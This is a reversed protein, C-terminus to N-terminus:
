RGERYTKGEMTRRQDPMKKADRAAEKAQRLEDAKADIRDALKMRGVPREHVIHHFVDNLLSRDGQRAAESALDNVPGQVRQWDIVRNSVRAIASLFERQTRGNGERFPHAQNVENYIMALGRAAQTHQMGRFFDAAELGEAVRGLRAEIRDPKEFFGHGKAIDVTRVQGAWEYVDQFLHGHISKLGDLDFSRPLGSARLTMARRAVMVDEKERLKAYTAAGVRNRLVYEGVAADFHAPDLYGVWKANDDGVEWPAPM